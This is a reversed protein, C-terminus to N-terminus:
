ECSQCAIAFAFYGWKYQSSVVSGSLRVIVTAISFFVAIVLDSLTLGSPLIVCLLL